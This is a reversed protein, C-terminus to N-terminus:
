FSVLTTAVFDTGFNGALPAETGPDSFAVGLGIGVGAGVVVVAIITWFWWEEVVSRSPATDVNPATSSSPATSGTETASTTPAASSGAAASRLFTIRAEVFTRNGADPVEQLYREYFGLAEADRRLREAASAMNFLLAGRHSLEYAQSFYNLAQEFRGADYASRGAAFLGRAEETALEGGEQATATASTLALVLAFCCGVSRTIGL